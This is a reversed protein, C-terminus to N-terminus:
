PLTFFFIAGEGKQSEAWIRGQHRDIIRRVTALGIGNGEFERGHLRQFPDFLNDKYNSDFGVGNDKVFIVLKDDVILRGVEIKAAVTTSTYKWANELLNWMLQNLLAPDGQVFLGEAIVVEVRRGPAGESLQEIAKKALGSLNVMSPKIKIRNVKALELLEDILRSMDSTARRSRELLHRAEEPLYSDFDHALISLYGNIHRLPARLDHSVAYSFSELEKVVLDLSHAREDAKEWAAQLERNQLELEAQHTELELPLRQMDMDATPQAAGAGSGSRRM